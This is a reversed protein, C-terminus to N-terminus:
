LKVSIANELQRMKSLYSAHKPNIELARACNKIAARINGKKENILAMGFHSMSPAPDLAISRKMFEESNELDGIRMSLVAMASLAPAFNPKIDMLSIYYKKACDNNHLRTHINALIYLPLPHEQHVKHIKEALPLANEFQQTHYYGNLAWIEPNNAENSLGAGYSLADHVEAERAIMKEVAPVLEGRDQLTRSVGHEGDLVSYVRVKPYQALSGACLTDVLDMEGFPMFIPLDIKNLARLDCYVHSLHDSNLIRTSRGGPLRLITECGAAYVGQCNLLAGYLIAAYGGMSGGATYISANPSIQQAIKKIERISGELGGSGLGSIGGRYWEHGDCNVFLKNIDIDDFTRYWGFKPPRAALHSFIVLLDTSSDSLNLSFYRGVKQM